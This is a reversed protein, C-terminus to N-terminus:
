FWVRARAAANGRDNKIGSGDTDITTLNSSDDLTREYSVNGGANDIM